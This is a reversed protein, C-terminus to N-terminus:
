HQNHEKRLDLLRHALRHRPLLAAKHWSLLTLLNTDGDDDEDDDDGEKDDDDDGHDGGGHHLNGAGHLRALTSRVCSKRAVILRPLLAALRDTSM